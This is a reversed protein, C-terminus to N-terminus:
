PPLRECRNVSCSREPVSPAASKPRLAAAPTERSLGHHLSFPWGHRLHQTVLLTALALLGAAAGLALLGGARRTAGGDSM